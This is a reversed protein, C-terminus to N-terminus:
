GAQGPSRFLQAWHCFKLEQPTLKKYTCQPFNFKFPCCKLHIVISSINIERSDVRPFYLKKLFVPYIHLIHKYPGITKYNGHSTGIVPQRPTDIGIYLGWHGTHETGRQVLFSVPCTLHVYWSIFM